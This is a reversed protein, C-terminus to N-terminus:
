VRASSRPEAAPSPLPTSRLERRHRGIAARRADRALRRQRVRQHKLELPASAGKGHGPSSTSGCGIAAYVHKLRGEDATVAEIGRERQETLMRRPQRLWHGLPSSAPQVIDVHVRLDPAGTRSLVFSLPTVFAFELREPVSPVSRTLPGSDRRMTFSTVRTLGIM